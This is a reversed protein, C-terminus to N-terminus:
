LMRVSRLSTVIEDVSVFVEFTILLAPASNGEVPDNPVLTNQRTPEINSMPAKIKMIEFRRM